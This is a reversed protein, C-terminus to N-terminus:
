HGEGFERGDGGDDVGFRGGAVDEDESEGVFREEPSGYVEFAAGDEDVLIRVSNRSELLTVGSDFNVVDNERGFERM